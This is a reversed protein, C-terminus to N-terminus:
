WRYLYKREIDSVEYHDILQRNYSLCLRFLFFFGQLKDIMCIVWVGKILWHREQRSCNGATKVYIHDYHRLRGQNASRHIYRYARAFDPEFCSVECRGQASRNSSRTDPRRFRFGYVLLALIKVSVLLTCKTTNGNGGWSYSKVGIQRDQSVAQGSETM